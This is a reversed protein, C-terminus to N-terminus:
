EATIFRNNIFYSCLLLLFTLLFFVCVKGLGILLRVPSEANFLPPPIFKRKLVQVDSPVYPSPYASSIIYTQQLPHIQLPSIGTITEPLPDPLYKSLV